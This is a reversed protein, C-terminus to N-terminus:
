ALRVAHCFLYFRIIFKNHMCISNKLIFVLSNLLRENKEGCRFSSGVHLGTAVACNEVQIDIDKAIFERVVLINFLQFPPSFRSAPMLEGFRRKAPNNAVKHPYSKVM